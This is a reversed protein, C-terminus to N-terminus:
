EKMMTARWRSRREQYQPDERLRKIDEYDIWWRQRPGHSVGVPYRRLRGKKYYVELTTVSVELCRAGEQMTLWKKQEFVAEEEMTLPLPPRYVWIRKHLERNKLRDSADRYKEVQCRSLLYHRKEGFERKYRFVFFRRHIYGFVCQFTVGLIEAAEKVTIWEECDWHEPLLHICFRRKVRATTARMAMVEEWFYYATKRPKVEEPFSQHLKGQLYLYQVGSRTLGLYDAAERTTVLGGNTYMM